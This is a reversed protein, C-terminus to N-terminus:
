PSITSKVFSPATTRCAFRKPGFHRAARQTGKERPDCPRRRRVKPTTSINLLGSTLMSASSSTFTAPINSSHVLRATTHAEIIGEQQIPTVVGGRPVSGFDYPQRFVPARHRVRTARKSPKLGFRGAFRSSTCSPAADAVRSRISRWLSLRGETGEIRPQGDFESSPGESDNFFPGTSQLGGESESGM